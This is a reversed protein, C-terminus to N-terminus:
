CAMCSSSAHMTAPWPHMVPLAREQRARRLLLLQGLRPQVRGPHRLM